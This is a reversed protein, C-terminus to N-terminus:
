RRRTRWASTGRSSAPVRAMTFVTTPVLGMIQEYAAFLPEYGPLQERPIPTVHGM